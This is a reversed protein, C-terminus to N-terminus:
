SETLSKNQCTKFKIVIWQHARDKYFENDRIGQLFIKEKIENTNKFCILKRM